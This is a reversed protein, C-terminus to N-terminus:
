GGVSLLRDLWKSATLRQSMSGRYLMEELRQFAESRAGAEILEAIEKLAPDDSNFGSSPARPAAAPSAAPTSAIPAAVELPTVIDEIVPQLEVEDLTEVADISIEIEEADPQEAMPSASLESLASEHVSDLALGESHSRYVLEPNFITDRDLQSAQGEEWTWGSPEDLTPAPAEDAVAASGAAQMASAFAQEQQQNQPALLMPEAPELNQYLPNSPDLQRGMDQVNRWMGDSSFQLRFAVAKEQFEDALGNRQFIEFLKMWLALATPYQQIEHNLLNIAQPVLGHDLLLQAEETVNGPSVVDMDADHWEERAERHIPTAIERTDLGGSTLTHRPANTEYQNQALYTTSIPIATYLEQEDQRRGQWYRWALWLAPVCVLGLLAWVWDGLPSSGGEADPETSAPKAKLHALQKELDAIQYKLQLMQAAQEDSELSLLQERLQLTQEPTLTNQRQTDLQPMSLRLRFEGSGSNNPAPVNDGDLTLRDAPPNAPLAPLPLPALRMAELPRPAPAAAPKSLNVGPPLQIRWDGTLRATTSQPLDPNLEYIGAVLAQQRAKDNPYYSAAIKAVSDGEESLWATGLPPLKRRSTAPKTAPTSQGIAPLNPRYEPPDLMIRYDRQFVREDEGPCKVKIALTVLPENLTDEGRILLRGGGAEYQYVLRARRLVGSAQEDQPSVLRFCAASLEEDDAAAVTVVANFRDGLASRVQIEGLMAALAPQALGATLWIWLGARLAFQPMSTLIM